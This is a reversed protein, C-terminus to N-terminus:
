LDTLRAHGDTSTYGVQHWMSNIRLALAAHDDTKVPEHDLM